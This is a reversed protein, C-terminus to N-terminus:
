SDGARQERALLAMEVAVSAADDGRNDDPRCRALAQDRSQTTLVGFAVPVGTDLMARQIGEAALKCVYDFHRTEGEIVAGLCVVADVKREQIVLQAAFGLEVAGPVELEIVDEVGHRRLAERAGTRLATTIDENFRARILAVRLGRGNLTATGDASGAM